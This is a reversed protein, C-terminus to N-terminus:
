QRSFCECIQALLRTWASALEYGHVKKVEM